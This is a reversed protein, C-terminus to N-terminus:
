FSGFRMFLTIQFNKLRKWSYYKLCFSNGFLETPHEADFLDWQEM